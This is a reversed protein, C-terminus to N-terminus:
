GDKFKIYWHNGDCFPKNKSGGCRCLTYHEKSEPQSKTQEDKLTPGGIVDYPGDKFVTIMPKREKQDKYPVNNITYSLAGSPCRRIIKISEEPEAGEPDIWPEQKMRWVSPLDDTCYGRHSCVGRNDHITVNKGEYDDMKDPVHELHKEGSFGIGAHTGDCFPKTSSKGCRCLSMIPKAELSEGGSRKFTILNKVILPGDNSVMISPKEETQQDMNEGKNRNKLFM